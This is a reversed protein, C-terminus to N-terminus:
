EFSEWDRKIHSEERENVNSAPLQIRHRGPSAEETGINKHLQDDGREGEEIDRTGQKNEQLGSSTNGGRGDGGDRRGGTGGGDGGGRRIDEEEKQIGNRGGKLKLIKEKLEEPIKKKFKRIKLIWLILVVPGAVLIALLIFGFMGLIVNLVYM